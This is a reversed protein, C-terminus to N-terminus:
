LMKPDAELTYRVMKLRPSFITFLEKLKSSFLHKNLLNLVCSSRKIYFYANNNVQRANSSRSVRVVDTTDTFTKCDILGRISRTGYNPILCFRPTQDPDISNALM